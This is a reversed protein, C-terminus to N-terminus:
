PPAWFPMGPRTLSRDREPWRVGRCGRTSLLRLGSSRRNSPTGWIPWAYTFAGYSTAGDRYEYSFEKEQCAEIILPLYPGVRRHDGLGHVGLVKVKRM